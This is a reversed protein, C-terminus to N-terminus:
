MFLQEYDQGRPLRALRALRIGEIQRKAVDATYDQPVKLGM